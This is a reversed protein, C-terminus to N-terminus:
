TMRELNLLVFCLGIIRVNRWNTVIQMVKNTAGGGCRILHNYFRPCLITTMIVYVYLKLAQSLLPWSISMMLMWDGFAGCISQLYFVTEHSVHMRVMFFMSMQIKITFKNKLELCFAFVISVFYCTSQTCHCHFEYDYTSSDLNSSMTLPLMWRVVFIRYEMYIFVNM